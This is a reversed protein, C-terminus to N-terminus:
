FASLFALKAETASTVPPTSSPAQLPTPAIVPVSKGAAVQLLRDQETLVKAAYGGDDSTSAGVYCKLGAEVSGRTGVCDQLVKAGVRLNSVPDFAALRGGFNAYKDTHVATMVQMLGQAGVPSQAFPNFGSEIAMVALLLTPELRTKRGIDWAEAVLASVPEPAVKYKRSLWNAVAAQPKPLDKPNAATARDIADTEINLGFAAVKRAYLWNMLYQEGSDRLDPRVSLTIVTFAVALGLLAFGNQTIRFFVQTLYAALTRMGVRTNGSATM